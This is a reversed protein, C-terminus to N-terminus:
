CPTWRAPLASATSSACRTCATKSPPCCRCWRRWGTRCRMSRTRTWRLHSTDFPLHTAMLRLETIDGALKRRDQGSRRRDGGGACRRDLAPRRGAGPGAAGAAGARPEAAAGPQAGADRLRHRAIIEEVRALAIDFITGPDGVAPFAILAATYGALMFVYSRPTRDLLSIYLCGGVWLALALSLLEPSNALSPVLLVTALSGLLTGGVRYLRRRASRGPSRRPVRRVRDDDGLVPAAPRHAHAVYLALMAAAFSKASFLAESATPLKM